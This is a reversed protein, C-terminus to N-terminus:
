DLTVCATALLGGDVRLDTGTIFSARDSALFAVTEAVESPRAVRGLPHTRGWQAVTADVSEPTPAGALARASERLMPTDVSGPCVTNARIGHRAEDIAISRALANLGAKSATYAAVAPQSTMSQVSSVLVVAGGSRSRLVPIAARAALFAGTLNIALTQDWVEASTDAVSGYTQVGASTVLVDIGGFAETAHAMVGRMDTESTVDASVGAVTHGLANLREQEAAVEAPQNSCFLVTAGREALLEVTALGIGSSGGTVVAVKNAFEPM